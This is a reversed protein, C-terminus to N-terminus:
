SSFHLYKLKGYSNYERLFERLSEKFSVRRKSIDRDDIGAGVVLCVLWNQEQNDSNSKEYGNKTKRSRLRVVM